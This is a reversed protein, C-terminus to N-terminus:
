NNPANFDFFMVLYFVIFLPWVYANELRKQLPLSTVTPKSLHDATAEADLYPKDPDEPDILIAKMILFDGPNFKGIQLLISNTKVEIIYKIISPNAEIKGLQVL